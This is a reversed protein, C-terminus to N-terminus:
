SNGEKTPPVAHPYLRREILILVILGVLGVGSVCCGAVLGPTMYRLEIDHHGAELDLAMFATDARRLNAPKGDVFATWGKNYAVTLLLTRSEDLDITGTLRNCGQEVNQLAHASKDKLWDSRHAHTQSLIKLDSFTYEGAFPFAITVQSPAVETYGLSVLWTDKGGFMHATPVGNNIYGGAATANSHIPLEYSAPSTHVLDRIAFLVRSYWPLSGRQEEPVTQSPLISHYELGSVYVYTDANPVGECALTITANDKSVVFRDDKLDVGSTAAVSFPLSKDEFTLGQPNALTAGGDGTQSDTDELVVTQLLAQQRQIPTLKLYEERTIAQKFTTGLPLSSESRVVQYPVGLVSQEVVVDNADFGYPIIDTGDARYAYYRVGLLAMPDAHGQLDTFSFNISDGPIGLETHFADVGDNYVSNYFDIGQVGLTLSNNRARAIPAGAGAYAQAADYRWWSPDDIKTALIDLSDTTLLAYAEGFRAQERAIGNENPSLYYLGNVGLTLALSCALAVRGTAFAQTPSLLVLSGLLAAMGAVSAKDRFAPIVFLLAYVAAACGLLHWARTDITRLAPAMRTLVFAVCLAYAWAWRNTAYNLANFFSGVAPLMLFVSLIVFVIKLERNQGKRSFLLVCAFFALGGFGQYTDSGIEFTGLFSSLLRVYFIPAYLIPVSTPSQVLRDMGFLATAAPVLAFGAILACLLCLGAFRLAWALFRRVTLHPREVMIVRITLYGVLLLVAMYTFYYSIIALEALAAVFVWPRKGALIREAGALVVPFLILAHLGSSWRVGILGAGCLAYLLAGLVTGTKSESRTRCYFVFGLGALYLRVLVLLQFVWESLSEPTVVSVLNLPDLFVDFTTPVDAGYGSCWAWLPVNLGHGSVLDAIIGRIWQGEYIFFPYYQSLGDVYWILGRGTCFLGALVLLAFPVFLLTYARYCSRSCMAKEQRLVWQQISRIRSHKM